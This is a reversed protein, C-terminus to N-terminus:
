RNEPGVPTPLVSTALCSASGRQTDLQQAEVHGFVHLPVSDAPQDAGRGAIDTEVLAAQQGITDILMGIADQQEVLDLLGMRVQEVDQQLHHVV